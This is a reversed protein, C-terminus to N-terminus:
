TPALNMVRISQAWSLLLSAKPAIDLAISSKLCECSDLLGSDLVIHVLEASQSAPVAIEEPVGKSILFEKSKQKAVQM